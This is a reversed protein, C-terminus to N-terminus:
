ISSLDLRQQKIGRDLYFQAKEVLKNFQQIHKTSFASVDVKASTFSASIIDLRSITIRPLTGRASCHTPFLNAVLLTKHSRYFRAQHMLFGGPITNTQNEVFQLKEYIPGSSTFRQERRQTLLQFSDIVTGLKYDKQTSLLGQLKKKKQRILVALDESRLAM